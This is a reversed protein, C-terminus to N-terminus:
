FLSHVKLKCFCKLVEQMECANWLADSKGDASIAISNTMKWTSLAILLVKM